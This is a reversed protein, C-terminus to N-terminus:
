IDGGVSTKGATTKEGKSTPDHHRIKLIPSNHASFPRAGGAGSVITEHKSKTSHHRSYFNPNGHAAM